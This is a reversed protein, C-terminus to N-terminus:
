PPSTVTVSPPTATAPTAVPAAACPSGAVRNAPRTEGPPVPPTSPPPQDDPGGLFGGAPFTAIFTQVDRLEDDTIVNTTFCPMGQPRGNRVVQVVADNAPNISLPGVPVHCGGCGAASFVAAGRQADGGPPLNAVGLQDTTPTPVPLAPPNGSQLTRIFAVLEWIQTDAYQSSFAPMPTFGLGNKVIYFLQGDTLDRATSDTLDTAPPFSTLGFAGTGDGLAGHCQSCSGTYAQRGAELTHSTPSVPNPGLGAGQIRSVLAVVAAAYSRELQGADHHMLAIPVLVLLGLLGAVAIGFAMGLTLHWRPGRHWPRRPNGEAM